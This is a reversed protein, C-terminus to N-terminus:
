RRGRHRIGQMVRGDYEVITRASDPSAKGAVIQRFAVERGEYSARLM